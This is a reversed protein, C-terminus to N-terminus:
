KEEMDKSKGQNASAKEEHRMNDQTHCAHLSSLPFAADAPPHYPHRPGGTHRSQRKLRMDQVRCM